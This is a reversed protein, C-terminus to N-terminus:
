LTHSRYQSFGSMITWRDVKEIEKLFAETPVLASKNSARVLFVLHLAMAKLKLMCIQRIQQSTDLRCKRHKSKNRISDGEADEVDQTDLSLVFRGQLQTCLRFIEVIANQVIEGQQTHM